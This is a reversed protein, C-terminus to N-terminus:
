FLLIDGTKADKQTESEQKSDNAKPVEPKAVPADFFLGEGSTADATAKSKAQTSLVGFAAKLANKDEVSVLCKEMKEIAVNANSEEYSVRFTKQLAGLSQRLYDQFQLDM